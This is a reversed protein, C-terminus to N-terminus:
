EVCTLEDVRRQAQPDLRSEALAENKHKKRGSVYRGNQTVRAQKHLYNVTVGNHM